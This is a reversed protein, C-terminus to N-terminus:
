REKHFDALTITEVPVSSIYTILMDINDIHFSKVGIGYYEKNVFQAYTIPLPINLGMDKALKFVRHAEEYNHCVMYGGKESCEKILDTTKGARRPRFIIKM